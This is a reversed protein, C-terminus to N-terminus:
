NVEWTGLGRPSVKAGSARKASLIWLRAFSCKTIGAHSAEGSKVVGKEGLHNEERSEQSALITVTRSSKENMVAKRDQRTARGAGKRADLSVDQERDETGECTRERGKASEDM